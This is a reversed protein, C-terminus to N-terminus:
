LQRHLWCSCLPYRAIPRYAGYIGVKHSRRSSRFCYCAHRHSRSEESLVQPSLQLRAPSVPILNQQQVVTKGADCDANVPKPALPWNEVERGEGMAPGRSEALFLFDVERSLFNCLGKVGAIWLFLNECASQGPHLTEPNDM